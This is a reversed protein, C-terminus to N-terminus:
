FPSYWKSRYNFVLFSLPSLIAVIWWAQSNITLAEYVAYVAGALLVLAVLIWLYGKNEKQTKM